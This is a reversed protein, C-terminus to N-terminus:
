NPALQNSYESPEVCITAMNFVPADASFRPSRVFPSAFANNVKVALAGIAFEV